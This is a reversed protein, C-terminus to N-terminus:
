LKTGPSAGDNARDLCSSELAREDERQLLRVDLDANGGEPTFKVANSLLNTILQALRQDDSM